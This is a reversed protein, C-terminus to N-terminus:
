TMTRWPPNLSYPSRATVLLIEDQPGAPWISPAPFFNMRGKGGNDPMKDENEWAQTAPGVMSGLDWIHASLLAMVNEPDTLRRITGRHM